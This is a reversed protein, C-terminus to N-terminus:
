FQGGKDQSAALDETILLILQNHLAAVQRVPPSGRHAHKTKRGSCEKGGVRKGVSGDGLSTQSELGEESLGGSGERELRGEM